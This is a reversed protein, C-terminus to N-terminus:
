DFGSASAPSSVNTKLTVLRNLANCNVNQVRAPPQNPARGRARPKRVYHLATRKRPLVLPTVNLRLAFLRASFVMCILGIGLLILFRISDFGFGFRIHISDSCFFLCCSRCSDTLVPFFFLHGCFLRVCVKPCSDKECMDKPCRVSCEPQECHVTCKACETQPCCLFLFLFLNSVSRQSGGGM